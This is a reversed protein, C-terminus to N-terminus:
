AAGRRLGEKEFRKDSVRTRYRSLLGTEGMFDNVEVARGVISEPSSFWVRKRFGGLECDFSRDHLLQRTFCNQDESPPPKDSARDAELQEAQIRAFHDDARQEFVLALLRGVGKGDELLVKGLVQSNLDVRLKGEIPAVNERPILELVDGPAIRGIRVVQVQDDGVGEVVQAVDIGAGVEQVPQQEPVLGVHDDVRDVGGGGHGVLVDELRHDLKALRHDFEFHAQVRVAVPQGVCDPPHHLVRSLVHGADIQGPQDAVHLNEVLAHLGSRGAVVDLDARGAGAAHPEVNGVRVGFFLGALLQQGFARHAAGM